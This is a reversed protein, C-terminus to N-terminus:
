KRRSLPPKTSLNSEIAVTLYYFPVHPPHFRPLLQSFLFTLRAAALPLLRFPECILGSHELFVSRCPAARSSCVSSPIQYVSNLKELYKYWLVFKSTFLSIGVFTRPLAPQPGARRRHGSSSERVCGPHWRLGESSQGWHSAGVAVSCGRPVFHLQYNFDM